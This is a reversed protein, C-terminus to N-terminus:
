SAESILFSLILANVVEPSEVPLVLTPAQVGAIADLDIEPENTWIAAMRAFLTDFNGAPKERVYEVRLHEQVRPEGLILEVIGNKIRGSFNYYQGILVLRSVLDPRRMAVLLALVAGDSWGILPASDRVVQDLYTITDGAM